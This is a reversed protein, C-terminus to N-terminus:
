HYPSWRSRCQSVCEKGGRRGESREVAEASIDWIAAARAKLQEVVKEAAQSVAMGTAFTVRSGGTLFSYAISATDGVIPRVREVPIGFVEAAMMAMSARWGGCDPKGSGVVGTGEENVPGTGGAGGGFHM